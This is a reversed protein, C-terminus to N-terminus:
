IPNLVSLKCIIKGGRNGDDGTGVRCLRRKGMEYCVDIYSLVDYKKFIDSLESYTKNWAKVLIPILILQMNLVEKDRSSM